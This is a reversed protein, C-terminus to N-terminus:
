SRPHAPRGAWGRLPATRVTHARRTHGDTVRYALNSRGGHLMAATLPGQCGPVHSDFWRSLASLDLGPPNDIHLDTREARHLDSTM